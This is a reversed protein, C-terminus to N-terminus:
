LPQKPAVVVPLATQAGRERLRRALHRPDYENKIPWCFALRSHALGPFSRELAADIRERWAQVQAAPLAAREAVLRERQSKRWAKLDPFDM